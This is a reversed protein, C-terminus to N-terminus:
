FDEATIDLDDAAADIIARGAVGSKGVAKLVAALKEDTTRAVRRKVPPEHGTRLCLWRVFLAAFTPENILAAIHRLSVEYGDSGSFARSVMSSAVDLEAALWNVGGAESLIVSLVRRM